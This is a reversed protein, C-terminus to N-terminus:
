LGIVCCVEPALCYPQWRDTKTPGRCDESSLVFASTKTWGMTFRCPAKMCLIDAPFVNMMGSGSHTKFGRQSFIDFFVLIWIERLKHSLVTYFIFTFTFIFTLSERSCAM